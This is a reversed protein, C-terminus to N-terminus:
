AILSPPRLRPTSGPPPGFSFSGDEPLKLVCPRRFSTGDLPPKRSRAAGDLAATESSPRRAALCAAPRGGAAITDEAGFVARKTTARDITSSTCGGGPADGNPLSGDDQAAGCARAKRQKSGARSGPTSGAQSSGQRSLESTISRKRASRV